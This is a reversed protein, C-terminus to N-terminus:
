GPGVPAIHPRKDFNFWGHENVVGHLPIDWNDNDVQDMQQLSYAIGIRQPIRTDRLAELHRDYYGSGMGLRNGRRDYAVLPMMLMDFGAIPRPNTFQPEFIGYRNQKLRSDALWTHFGM